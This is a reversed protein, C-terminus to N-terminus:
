HLEEKEKNTLIRKTDENDLYIQRAIAIANLFEVENVTLTEYREHKHIWDVFRATMGTFEWFFSNQVQDLENSHDKM